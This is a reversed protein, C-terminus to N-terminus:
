IALCDRIMRVTEILCLQKPEVRLVRWGLRTASNYKEMDKKFGKGRNHGGGIWIGGEVELAVKAAPWAFDFRWKRDVHFKFETIPEPLDCEAFFAIVVLVNYKM